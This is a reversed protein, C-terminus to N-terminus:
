STASAEDTPNEDTSSDATAATENAAERARAIRVSEREAGVIQEDTLDREMAIMIRSMPERKFKYDDFLLTRKRGDREYHIRAIGRAVWKRKDIRQIQDFGVVAGRSTRLETDTGEMWTGRSRYWAFLCPITILYCLVSYFYQTGIKSAQKEPDDKPPKTSWGKEEAIKRWESERVPKWPKRPNETKQFYAQSRELEAPYTVLGDFLFWSGFVLCGVALWLFRRYYDPDFDARVSAAPDPM